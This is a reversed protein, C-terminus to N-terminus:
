FIYIAMLTIYFVTFIFLFDFQHKSDSCQM